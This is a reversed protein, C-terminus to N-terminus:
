VWFFLCHSILILLGNHQSIMLPSLDTLIEVIRLFFLYLFILDSSLIHSSTSYVQFDREIWFSKYWLWFLFLVKYYICSKCPNLSSLNEIKLYLCWPLSPYVKCEMKYTLESLFELTNNRKDQHCLWGM